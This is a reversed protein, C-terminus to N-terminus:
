QCTLVKITFEQLAYGHLRYIHRVDMCMAVAIQEWTNQDLYRMELIRIYREDDLQHIETIIQNKKDVLKDIMETVEAEMDVWRAVIDSMKDLSPSSQVRDKVLASGNSTALLKLEEVQKQRRNIKADLVSIQRLYEKATM